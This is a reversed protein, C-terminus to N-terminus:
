PHQVSKNKRFQEPTVGSYRKFTRAFTHYLNFGTESSIKQISKGPQEILIKKAVDIRYSNLFSIMTTGTLEKFLRSFYTASLNFEAAIEDLSFDTHYHEEIYKLILDKQPDNKKEKAEHWEMFIHYIHVLFDRAEEISEKQLLQRFLHTDGEIVDKLSGKERYLVRLPINLIQRFVQEMYEAHKFSLTENEEIIRHIFSAAEERKCALLMNELQEEYRVPFHFSGETQPANEPLYMRNAGGYRQITLLRLADYYSDNLESIDQKKTGLSLSILVGCEENIRERIKEMFPIFGAPYPLVTMDFNIMMALVSENIQVNQLMISIQLDNSIIEKM